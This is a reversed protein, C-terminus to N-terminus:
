SQEDWPNTPQPAPQPHLIQEDEVVRTPPAIRINRLERLVNPLNLTLVCIAAALLILSIYFTDLPTSSDILHYMTWIPNTIQLLTYGIYRLNVSMMQITWPIGTGVMLLLIQILAAAVMSVSAVRRIATVLLLGVGLYVVLYSWGVFITSMFQSFSPVPSSSRGLWETATLALFAMVLLSTANAVVFMYGSAAGPNLWSLYARGFFSSPLRRKVRESMQPRESTLLIGMFYWYVGACLVMAEVINRDNAGEMVWIFGMWGVWCAQQVLMAIRLPTSRNESNFTIMGASAFFLLAFTTGYATFWALSAAWFDSASVYMYSHSLMEYALMLGLIFAGILGAVFVVSIFIQSYRQKSLTALFLGIM